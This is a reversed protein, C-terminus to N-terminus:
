IATFHLSTYFINIASTRDNNQIKQKVNFEISVRENAYYEFRTSINKKVGTFRDTFLTMAFEKDRYITIFTM